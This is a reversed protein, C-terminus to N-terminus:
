DSLGALVRSSWDQVSSRVVLENIRQLSANRLAAGRAIVWDAEFLLELRVEVVHEVSEVSVFGAGLLEV